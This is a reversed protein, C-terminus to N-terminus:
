RVTNENIIKNNNKYTKSKAFDIGLLKIYEFQAPHNIHTAIVNINLDKCIQYIGAKVAKEKPSVYTVDLFINDIDYKSLVEIKPNEEFDKIIIEIKADHLDKIVRKMITENKLLDVVSFKIIILENLNEKVLNKIIKKRLDNRALVNKSLWCIMKSDKSVEQLKKTAEITLALNKFTIDIGRKGTDSVDAFQKEDITGSAPSNIIFISDLYETFGSSVNKVQEYRQEFPRNKEYEAKKRQLAEIKTNIKSLKNIYNPRDVSDVATKVELLGEITLPLEVTIKINEKFFMLAIDNDVEKSAAVLNVSTQFLNIGDLTAKTETVSFFDLDIIVYRILNNKFVKSLESATNIVICNIGAKELDFADNFSLNESKSYYVIVSEQDMM